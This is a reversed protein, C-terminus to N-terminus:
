QESYSFPKSAIGLFHSVNGSLSVLDSFTSEYHVLNYFFPVPLTASITLSFGFDTLIFGRTYGSFRTNISFFSRRERIFIGSIGHVLTRMPWCQMSLLRFLQWFSPMTATSILTDRRPICEVQSKEYSSISVSITSRCEVKCHYVSQYM